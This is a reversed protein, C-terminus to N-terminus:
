MGGTLMIVHIAIHWSTQMEPGTYFYSTKIKMGKYLLKAVYSVENPPMFFPIIFTLRNRKIHIHIPLTNENM